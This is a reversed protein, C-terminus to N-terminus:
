NKEEEEKIRRLQEVCKFKQNHANNKTEYGYELQIQEIAKNKYFIDSILNQCHKTAKQLYNQLKEAYTKGKEIELEIEEYLNSEHEATLYTMRKGTRLQKFWINRAIAFVYTKLSASLSFNDKKLKEILVMMTDQYVDEADSKNGNNTLIFKEISSYFTNYLHQDVTIKPKATAGQAATIAM